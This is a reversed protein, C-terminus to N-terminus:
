VEDFVQKKVYEIPMKQNCWLEFAAAGQNLVMGLGNIVHRVNAKKAVKMLKTTRPAYVIDCVAMDEHFWAPDEILSMEELPVMGVSTADCYVDATELSKRFDEKDNLDHMTVKCDTEQNIKEALKEANEFRANKRNFFAIEYFGDLAAQTAIATGAGGAGALVLKKGKVEIGEDILSQVFGIGDTNHGTLIGDDNVITNVAQIIEAAPSLKDMYQVVARKNPMSVNAGRMKLVRIADVAVKITDTDVDFSLYAYNIGLKDFAANHMAPSISHRCPSALLGLLVTNADIMRSM